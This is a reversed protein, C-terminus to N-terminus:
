VPPPTRMGANGLEPNGTLKNFRMVVDMPEMGATKFILKRKDVLDAVFFPEKGDNRIETTLKLRPNTMKVKTTTIAHWFYRLSNTSPHFPDFSIHVSSVDKLNLARTAM